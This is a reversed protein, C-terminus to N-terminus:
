SEKRVLGPTVAWDIAWGGDRESMAVVGANRFRVPMLGDPAGILVAVLRVLFPLHGVIMLSSEPLRDIEAAVPRPDDGPLLGERSTVKGAGAMSAAVLRATHEARVKGSHWILDVAAGRAALYEGALRSNHEGENTLDRQPDQESDKAEGHRILYLM